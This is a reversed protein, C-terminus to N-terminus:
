APLEIIKEGCINKKYVNGYKSFSIPYIELESLIHALGLPMAGCAKIEMLCAGEPLLRQGHDGAGLSLEYDRSRINRDFTIRLERSERGVFAERDYALYIKAKTQYFNVFYEIEKIIQNEMPPRVGRDLYAEAQRLSLISRRKYVIGKYKKKIEMFVKDAPGPVGYSRLRLKEKYEPKEISARILQYDDTDYYLNCITYEGYGDKKIYPAARYMFAVYQKETLLYKKEKRKFVCVTESTNRLM